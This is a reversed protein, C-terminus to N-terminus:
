SSIRFIAGKAAKPTRSLRRGRRRRAARASSWCRRLQSPGARGCRVRLTEPLAPREARCRRAFTALRVYRM